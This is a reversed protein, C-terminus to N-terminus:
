QIVIQVKNSPGFSNSGSFWCDIFAPGHPLSNPLLMNIQDLGPVDPQPGSFTIDTVNSYSSGSTVQCYDRNAIGGRFGTGYLSLYVAGSSMDIPTAICPGTGACSFVDVSQQKGNALVRIATAAALGNAHGDVTFFGPAVDSIPTARTGEVVPKTGDDITITSWGNATGDPVLFNIQTTSVYLHQALKAVNSSDRIRLRIGGLETPWTGSEAVATTAALHSGYISALSAPSVSSVGTAASVAAVSAPNGPSDNFLVSIAPSPDQSFGPSLVLDPRGDGNLDAALSVVSYAHSDTFYNPLQFTGDGKGLLVASGTTIDVNGDGNFDAAVIEGGGLVPLSFGVPRFTGDGNGVLVEV